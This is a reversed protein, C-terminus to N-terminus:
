FHRYSLQGMLVGSSNLGSSISRSSSALALGTYSCLLHILSSGYEVDIMHVQYSQKTSDDFSVFELEGTGDSGIYSIRYRPM